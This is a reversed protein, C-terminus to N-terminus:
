KKSDIFIEALEAVKQQLTACEDLSMTQKVKSAQKLTTWVKDHLDPYKELHEPKFYDGWLIAVEHKVREAHKEKTQVIRIFQNQHEMGDIDGLAQAKEVMVRCTEAAHIMTDTEYIGCPVDCHAYVTSFLKM